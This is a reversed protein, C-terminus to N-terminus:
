VATSWTMSRKIRHEMDYRAAVRYGSIGERDNRVQHPIWSYRCLCYGCSASKQVRCRLAPHGPAQRPIWFYRCRCKDKAAGRQVGCRQAPHGPARRPIWSYGVISGADSHPTVGKSSGATGDNRVQHPIWLYRCLCYGCSASKQVGYRLAPHNGRQVRCRTRPSTSTM